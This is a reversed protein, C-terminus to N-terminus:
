WRSEGNALTWHYGDLSLAAYVGDQGNDKFGAFVWPSGDPVGSQAKLGVCALLAVLLCLITRLSFMKSM